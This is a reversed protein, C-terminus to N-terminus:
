ASPKLRQREVAEALTLHGLAVYRALARSITLQGDSAMRSKRQIDRLEGDTPRVPGIQEPSLPVGRTLAISTAAATDRQANGRYNVPTSRTEDVLEVTTALGVFSQLIRDRFTPAGDGIRVVFRAAPVTALVSEVTERVAEPSACHVLRLIRGDALVAVGPREGPDIGVVCRRFEHQGSLVRHAAEITEAINTLVVVHAHATVEAERATTVLVGVRPPVEEGPSLSLFPIERERLAQVLDHYAAFDDTQIGIVKLRARRCTPSPEQHLKGRPGRLGAAPLVGQRPAPSQAGAAGV